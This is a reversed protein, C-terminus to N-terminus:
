WFNPLACLFAFNNNVSCTIKYLIPSTNLSVAIDSLHNNFQISMQKGAILGNGSAGVLRAHLDAGGIGASGAGLDKLLQGLILVAQVTLPGGVLLHGRLHSVAGADGAHAAQAGHLVHAHVHRRVGDERRGVVAHAAAEDDDGRVIGAHVRGLVLLIVAVIGARGLDGHDLGGVGLLAQVEHLRGVVDGLLEIHGHQVAGGCTHGVGLADDGETLAGLVLRSGVHAVGALVNGGGGVGVHVVGLHLLVQLLQRAVAASAGQVAHLHVARLDADDGGGDGVVVGLVGERLIGGEQLQAQGIGQGHVQDAVEGGLHLLEVHDLLQLAEHLILDLGGADVADALLEGALQILQVGLQDALPDEAVLGGGHIHADLSHGTRGSQAGAAGVAAEEVGHGAVLIEHHCAVDAAVGQAAGSGQVRQVAHHAHAAAKRHGHAHGLGKLHGADGAFLDEAHQAVGGEEM